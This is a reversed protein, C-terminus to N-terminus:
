SLLQMGHFLIGKSVSSTSGLAQFSSTLRDDARCSDSTIGNFLLQVAPPIPRRVPDWTSDHWTHDYALSANPKLQCGACEAGQQWENAPTLVPVLGTLEDGWQDDITANRGALSTDLVMLLPLLLIFSQMHGTLLGQYMTGHLSTPCM